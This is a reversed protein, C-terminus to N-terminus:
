ATHSFPYERTHSLTTDLRYDRYTLLDCNIWKTTPICPDLSHHTVPPHLQVHTAAADSDVQITWDRTTLQDGCHWRLGVDSGSFPDCPGRMNDVRIMNQLQVAM